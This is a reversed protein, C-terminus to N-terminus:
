TLCSVVEMETVNKSLVVNLLYDMAESSALVARDKDLHGIMRGVVICGEVDRMRNGVHILIDERGPVDILEIVRRRGRKSVTVKYTGEPICSEFRHNDKWPLELTFCQVSGAVVLVGMTPAEEGRELRVLTMKETV